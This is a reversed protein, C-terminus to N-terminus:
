FAVTIKYINRERDKVTFIINNREGAMKPFSPANKKKKKEGESSRM